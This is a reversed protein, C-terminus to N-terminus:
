TISSFPTGMNPNRVQICPHKQHNPHITVRYVEAFTRATGVKDVRTFPLVINSHLILHTARDVLFPALFWWQRSCFHRVSLANWQKKFRTEPSLFVSQSEEFLVPLNSGDFGSSHFQAVAQLIQVDQFFCHILSAFINRGRKVVFDVLSDLNEQEAQATNASLCQNGAVLVQFVAERNIFADLCGRRIFKKEEQRNEVLLMLIRDRLDQSDSDSVMSAM